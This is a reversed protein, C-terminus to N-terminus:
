SRRDVQALYHGFVRRLAVIAAARGTMDCAQATEGWSHHQLLKGVVLNLSATSLEASAQSDSLLTLAGKWLALECHEFSRAGRAFARINEGDREQLVQHPPLQLLLEAAVSAELERLGVGLNYSLVGAFRQNEASAITAVTENLAKLVVLAHEGSSGDRRLGLCVPLYKARRWFPLLDPSAGFSSGLYAFHRSRAWRKLWDLMFLGLGKRQAAPHVAIRVIRIGAMDLLAACGTQAMLTQPLLHGRPRRGGQSIANILASSLPGDFALLLAGVVAQRHSLIAVRMNPADMLLRSDDPTTRYHALTLLGVLQSMLGPEDLLRAREILEMQCRNAVVRDLEHDPPPEAQLWLLQKISEELPDGGAWRVPESLTQYRWQPMRRSLEQQFRIAFGRGTGEYGHVTTTFVIRHYHDLMRSLLPAPIAAAEDVLLLRAPPTQRLLEDPPLYILSREEWYLSQARVSAGPLIKRARAFLPEISARSPATVVLHEVGAALLRAAAIGLASTKGRGRDACLVLPRNRHGTVVHEISQVALWQDLSVCDEDDAPVQASVPRTELNRALLPLQPLSEGQRLCVALRDHALTRALHELFFSREGLALGCVTMRQYDPDAFRSWESLPPTLLVLVGGARVTGALAGVANPHFGSWADVVLNATETGLRSLAGSPRLTSRNPPPQRTLWLTERDALASCSSCLSLGWSQDGSLLLLYRWRNQKAVQKLQILWDSFKVGTPAM